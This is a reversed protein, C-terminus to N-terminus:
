IKLYLTFDLTTLRIKWWIIWSTGINCDIQRLAMNEYYFKIVKWKQFWFLSVSVCLVHWVFESSSRRGKNGNCRRRDFCNSFLQFSITDCGLSFFWMWNSSAENRKSQCNVNLSLSCFYVRIVFDIVSFFFILVRWGQWNNRIM